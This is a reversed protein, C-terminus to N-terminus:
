NILSHESIITQYDELKDFCVLFGSNHVFSCKENQLFKIKDTNNSILRYGAGRSNKTLVIDAEIKNIKCYKKTPLEEIKVDNELKCNLVNIITLDKFKVFEVGNEVIKLLKDTKEIFCCISKGMEKMVSCLPDTLEGSVNSFLEIIASCIPNNSLELVEETTNLFKAAAKPGYSDFIEIFRFTPFKDRYNKGYFYDMVMTASCIEEKIHHHDFNHLEPNFDMGQDIVWYKPDSLHEQTFKTRYAKCDLKYLLICTALFDDIHAKGDHVIIM